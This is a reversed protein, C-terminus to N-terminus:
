AGSLGRLLRVWEQPGITGQPLQVRFAVVFLFYVVVLLVVATLLASWWRAGLRWTILFAFVFTPLYFGIWPVVFYFSLLAFALISADLLGRRSAASSEPSSGTAIWGAGVQYVGGVLLVIGLVVPFAKPGPDNEDSSPLRNIDGAFYLFFSAVAILWVGFWLSATAPNKEQNM